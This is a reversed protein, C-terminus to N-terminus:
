SRELRGPSPYFKMRCISKSTRARPWMRRDGLSGDRSAAAKFIARHALIIKRSRRALAARRFRAIPSPHNSLHALVPANSRAALPCRHLGKAPRRDQARNGQRRHVRPVHSNRKRLTSPVVPSPKLIPEGNDKRKLWARAIKRWLSTFRRCTQSGRRHDPKRELVSWVYTSIGTNYFMYHIPLGIISELLLRDQM